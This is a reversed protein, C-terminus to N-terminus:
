ALTELLTGPQAAQDAVESGLYREATARVLKLRAELEAQTAAAAAAYDAGTPSSSALAAARVQQMKLITAQPDDAIPTTDYALSVGTAYLQGDPGITYAYSGGGSVYAGGASVQAARNRLVQQAAARLRAIQLEVELSIDQAPTFLPQTSAASPGASTDAGLLSPRTTNGTTSASSTGAPAAFLSAPQGARAASGWMEVYNLPSFGLGSLASAAEIM